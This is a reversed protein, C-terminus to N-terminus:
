SSIAKVLLVRVPNVPHQLISLIFRFIESHNILESSLIRLNLSESNEGCKLEILITILLGTDKATATLYNVLQTEHSKLLKEVSKLECIVREEVYLDAYYEGIAEGEYIVQVPAQQQVAIDLKNLEIVMANEYVKELFGKGLTSHVKFACGIIKQTLAKDKFDIRDM